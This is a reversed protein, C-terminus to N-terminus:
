TLVGTSPDRATLCYPLGAPDRLTTWREEVREVLAGRGVHEVALAAVDAGCAIDLHATTATRPDGPGLRQLLVRLPLEPPRALVEFEPRSGTRRAWGTFGAWFLAEAPFAAYPIDLALQDVRCTGAASVVPAPRQHDGHFPVLCFVFGSPSRMIRYGFDAVQEAGLREAAVAAAPVDDVHLGVHGKAAGDAVRQVRLFADGDPPILTAFQHHEGRPSSRTTATLREWFLVGNDFADSPMDVFATMWRIM